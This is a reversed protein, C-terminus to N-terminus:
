SIAVNSGDIVIHRLRARGPENKLELKYPTKLSELFRQDGTVSPDTHHTHSVGPRSEPLNAKPSPPQRPRHQLPNCLGKQNPKMASQDAHTRAVVTEKQIPQRSTETTGRAVLSTDKPKWDKMLGQLKDHAMVHGDSEITSKQSVPSQESCHNLCRHGPQDRPVPNKDRARATKNESGPSRPKRETECQAGLRSVVNHKANKPDESNRDPGRHHHNLLGGKGEVAQARTAQVAWAEERFFRKSEKEIEELLLLPETQQGHEGIVKEVIHQLYGMSKFFNFLIKYEKEDSTEDGEEPCPSPDDSEDDSRDAPLNIVMVNGPTGGAARKGEQNNELSFQKKPLREESESSRRKCSQREKGVSAELSAFGNIPVFHKEPSQPFVTDMQKTLETVPTGAKNRAEARGTGLDCGVAGQKPTESPLLEPARGDETLDIIEDEARCSESRVLNLLERKLSSPLILLDMTYKDEHAEVLHKFQKKVESERSSLLNENSRFLTVLQQIHSRAMVVPEASGKINLVGVEPVSVDACTNQVLCNLFLSQAGVFICHM